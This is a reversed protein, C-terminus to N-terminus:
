DGQMMQEIRKKRFGKDECMVISCNGILTSALNAFKANIETLSVTSTLIVPRGNNVRHSILRSLFEVAGHIRDTTLTADRFNTLTNLVESVHEICLFDWEESLQREDFDKAGLLGDFYVFKCDYGAKMLDMLLSCALLTKGTYSPGFLFLGMGQERNDDAHALYDQVQQFASGEKYLYDKFGKDRFKAPIGSRAIRFHYLADQRCSCKQQEGDKTVYGYGNCPKHGRISAQLKRLLEGENGNM